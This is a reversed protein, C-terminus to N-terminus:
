ALLQGAQVHQGEQFLVEVLEGDVRSRVTVTNLPTVTGIARLTVELDDLAAVTTRVPVPGTWPSMAPPASKGGPRFYLFAAALAAIVVLVAIVPRRSRRSPQRKTDPM